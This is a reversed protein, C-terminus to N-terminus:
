DSVAGFDILLQLIKERKHEVALKYANLGNESTQNVNCGYELLFNSIDFHNYYVSFMLASWGFHDLKEPDAYNDLLAKLSYLKGASSALMLPTRGNTDVLNVQAGYKLLLHLLAKINLDQYRTAAHFLPTWRLTNTPIDVHAGKELLFTQIKRFEDAHNPYKDLATHCLTLPTQLGDFIHINAGANLLLWVGEYNGNRFAMSLACSGNNTKHELTAHHKILLALTSRYRSHVSAVILPTIGYKDTADIDLHKNLLYLTLKTNTSLVSLQLLTQKDKNRKLLEQPSTVANILGILDGDKAYEFLSKQESNLMSMTHDLTQLLSPNERALDFPSNQQTNKQHPDAGYRLLLHTMKDQQLAISLHLPSNGYRDLSNANAGYLLLTQVIENCHRTIALHLPPTQVVDHYDVDFGDEIMKVVLLKNASRIAHYFAQYPHEIIEAEHAHYLPTKLILSSQLREM